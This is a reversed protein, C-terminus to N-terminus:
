NCIILLLSSSSYYIGVPTLSNGSPALCRFSLISSAESSSDSTMNQNTPTAPLWGNCHVSYLANTDTNLSHVIQKTFLLPLAHSKIKRRKVPKDQVFSKKIVM